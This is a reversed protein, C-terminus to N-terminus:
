TFYTHKVLYIYISYIIITVKWFHNQFYYINEGTIEGAGVTIIKGSKGNIGGNGSGVRLLCFIINFLHIINANIKASCSM